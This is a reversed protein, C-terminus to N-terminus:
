WDRAPQPHSALWDADITKFEPTDRWASIAAYGCDKGLAADREVCFWDTHANSWAMWTARAAERRERDARNAEVRIEAAKRGSMRAACVVGMYTDGEEEGEPSLTVMRVTGKLDDRGCHECQTVDDTFGRAVYRFAIAETHSTTSTM